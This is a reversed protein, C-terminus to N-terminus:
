YVTRKVEELLEGRLQWFNIDPRLGNAMLAFTLERGSKLRICGVETKVGSMAGIKSRVEGGNTATLSEYFRRGNPGQRALLNVRALDLPRIMSARALGSGDILRLGEFSVGAQEWYNRLAIVPDTKQYNGITLFLCQAELNDSVKHLHDIIEPLAASRHTALVAAEGKRPIPKGQIEVGAKELMKRLAELAVAPPDPIAGTVSFPAGIPVTGGLSIVRGFPQSYITVGDGSGAEGTTVENVWRTGDAVPSGLLLKAPDGVATGPQFSVTMRNHEVNVGYAGAGYANGIDGWNWHDNLPSTHFISHDLVLNGTITKMGGSVAEGALQQIDEITLTPDGGGMLVLDGNPMSVLKTEFRFETGLIGLAAGTTLTKLSSAPCLATEALDSSFVVENKEDLLVFGVLAAKLEPREMWKQYAEKLKTPEQAPREQIHAHVVPTPPQPRVTKWVLWGAVAWGSLFVTCKLFGNMRHDYSTAPM